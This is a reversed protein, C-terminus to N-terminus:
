VACANLKALILSNMELHARSVNGVFELTTSESSETVTSLLYALDAIIADADHSWATDGNHTALECLRGISEELRRGGEALEPTCREKLALGQTLTGGRQAVSREEPLGAIQGQLANLLTYINDLQTGSVRPIQDIRQTISNFANQMQGAFSSEISKVNDTLRPVDLTRIEQIENRCGVTM